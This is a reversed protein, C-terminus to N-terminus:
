EQFATLIDNDFYIYTQSGPRCDGCYIWQEHTGHQTVTKRIEPTLKVWGTKLFAKKTMGVYAKPMKESECQEKLHDLHWAADDAPAKELEHCYFFPDPTCDDTAGPESCYPARPKPKKGAHSEDVFFCSTVLISLMLSTKLITM